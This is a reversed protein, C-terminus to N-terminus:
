KFVFMIRWKEFFSFTSANPSIHFGCDSFNLLWFWIEQDATNRSQVKTAGLVAGLVPKLNNLVSCRVLCRAKSFLAGPVAGLVPIKHFSCRAGCRSGGRACRHAGTRHPHPALRFVTPWDQFPMSFVRQFFFVLLVRLRWPEIEQKVSCKLTSFSIAFRRFASDWSNSTDSASCFNRSATSKLIQENQTGCFANNFKNQLNMLELNTDPNGNAGQM